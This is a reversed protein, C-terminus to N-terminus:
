ITLLLISRPSVTCEGEVSRIPVASARDKDALVRSYRGIDVRIAEKTSNIYLVTKEAYLIGVVGKPLNEAFRIKRRIEDGTRMRFEEHNKRIAILGRYYDFVPRYETKRDWKLSNVADPSRYSNDDFGSNLPKSRLMEQGAQIFPIGQALFVMAAALKDMAVREAENVDPCSLALKDWLTHNDHAEVYNVTQLPTDTWLSDDPKTQPHFVGGVMATKVAEASIKGGNVFGSLHEQFTDGKIADRFNDSFMAMKPVKRANMKVARNKESLPSPGGTWGEGYLLIGPKIDELKKCLANICGIDYLGMLDFRFGDVRYERAWFCLSDMIFKAAMKRHTAFENGCASGNAYGKGFSRYYYRPFTKTFSSHALDYTHNYVVDMVVGIGANHLAMILQKLERIRARGDYADSAYSGEPVSFNQPDYGWNFSPSAGTEDVTKFDFVPLLHVHTIGLETLHDIGVAQGAKNKVGCETFALYKGKHLFNGSDDISFDRVHLEYIVANNPSNLHVERQNEWGEPDTQALNVVMGKEGNVGCARANIDITEFSKGGHTLEYTYYVGDLDGAATYEWVGRDNQVMPHQAKLTENKGTCTYLKLAAMEAPPSWVRFVTQERSYVAGLEGEYYFKQDIKSFVM